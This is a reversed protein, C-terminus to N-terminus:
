WDVLELGTFPFVWQATYFNAIMIVDTRTEKWHSDVISINNMPFSKIPFM